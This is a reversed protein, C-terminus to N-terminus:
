EHTRNPEPVNFLIRKYHIDEARRNRGKWVGLLSIAYSTEPERFNMGNLTHPINESPAEKRDELLLLQIAHSERNVLLGQHICFTRREEAGGKKKKLVYLHGVCPIQKNESELIPSSCQM